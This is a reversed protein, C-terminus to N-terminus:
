KGNNIREFCNWLDFHIREEEWWQKTVDIYTKLDDRTDFLFSPITSDLYVSKKMMVGVFQIKMNNYVNKENIANSYKVM